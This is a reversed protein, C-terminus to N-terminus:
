VGQALPDHFVREGGDAYRPEDGVKVLTASDQVTAPNGTAMDQLGLTTVIFIGDLLHGDRMWRVLTGAKFSNTPM